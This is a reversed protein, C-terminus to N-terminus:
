KVTGLTQLANDRLICKYHEDIFFRTGYNVPYFEGFERLCKLLTRFEGVNNRNRTVILYYIGEPAKYLSNDSDYYITSMKSVKIVDELDEFTVVAYSPTRKDSSHAQNNQREEENKDKIEKNDQNEVTRDIVVDEYKDKLFDANNRIAEQLKRIYEYKPDVKTDGDVKTVLFVACDQNVQIAEVMISAGDVEFGLEERARDMMHRIMREVKESKETAFDSLQMDEDQLDSSWLTFRIQNESLKEIKM